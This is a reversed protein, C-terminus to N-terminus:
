TRSTDQTRVPSPTDPVGGPGSTRPREPEHTAHSCCFIMTHEVTIMFYTSTPNRYTALVLVLSFRLIFPYDARVRISVSPRDPLGLKPFAHPGRVRYMRCIFWAFRTRALRGERRSGARGGTLRRPPPLQAQSCTFTSRVRVTNSRLCDSLSIMNFM